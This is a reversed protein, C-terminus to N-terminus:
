LLGEERLGAVMAQHAEIQTATMDLVNPWLRYSGDKLLRVYGKEAAVRKTMDTLADVDAQSLTRAALERLADEMRAQNEWQILHGAKEKREADRTANPWAKLISLCEVPLPFWHLEATAKNALYALAENSFGSLHRKYLAFRLKGTLQDDQRRPLIDMLKMCKAFADDDCSVFAPLPSDRIERLMAM